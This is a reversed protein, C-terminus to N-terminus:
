ELILGFHIRDYWIGPTILRSSVINSFVSNSAIVCYATRMATLQATLMHM